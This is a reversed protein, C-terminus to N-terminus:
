LPSPWLKYAVQIGNTHWKHAVQTGIRHRSTVLRVRNNEQGAVSRSLVFEEFSNRVDRISSVVIKEGVWWIGNMEDVM